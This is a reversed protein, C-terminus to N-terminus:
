SSGERRTQEVLVELQLEGRGQVEWTDGSPRSVARSSVNGVFEVRLRAEVSSATVKEGERGALPSTNIGVTMSLSPEDVTFVPLPRPDDPDTTERM